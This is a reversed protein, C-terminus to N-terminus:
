LTGSVMSMPVSGSGRLALPLTIFFFRRSLRISAHDCRAVHLADNTMALWRIPALATRHYVGRLLGGKLLISQKM